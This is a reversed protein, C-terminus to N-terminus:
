LSGRTARLGGLGVMPTESSRPGSSGRGRPELTPIPRITSLILIEQVDMVRQTEHMLVGSRACYIAPLAHHHGAEDDFPSGFVKAAVTELFRGVIAGLFYLIGFPDLYRM